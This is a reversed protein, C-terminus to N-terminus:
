SKESLQFLALTFVVITLIAGCVSQYSSRGDFTFNVGKGYLDLRKFYAAFPLGM